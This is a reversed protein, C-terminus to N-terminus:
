RMNIQKKLINSILIYPFFYKCKWTAPALLLQAPAPHSRSCKDRSGSLFTYFTDPFTRPHSCYDTDTCSELVTYVHRGLFNHRKTKNTVDKVRKSRHTKSCKWDYTGLMDTLKIRMLHADGRTCSRPRTSNQVSCHPDTQTDTRTQCADCVIRPSTLKIHM